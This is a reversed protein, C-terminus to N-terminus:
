LFNDRSIVMTYLPKNTRESYPKQCIVKAGMKVWFPKATDLCQLILYQIKPLKTFIFELGM